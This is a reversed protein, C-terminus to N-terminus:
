KKGYRSVAPAKKEVRLRKGRIRTTGNEAGKTAKALPIIFM